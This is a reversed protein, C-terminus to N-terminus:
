SSRDPGEESLVCALQRAGGLDRQGLVPDQDKHGCNVACLEQCYGDQRFESNFLPTSNERNQGM